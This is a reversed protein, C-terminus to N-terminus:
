RKRIKNIADRLCEANESGVYDFAEKRSLLKNGIHEQVLLRIPELTCSCYRRFDWEWYRGNNIKLTFAKRRSLNVIYLLAPGEAVAGGGFSTVKIFFIEQEHKKFFDIRRM